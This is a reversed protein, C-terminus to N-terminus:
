CTASPRRRLVRLRYPYVYSKRRAASRKIDHALYEGKIRRQPDSLLKQLASRSFIVRELKWGDKQIVFAILNGDDCLLQVSRPALMAIIQEAMMMEETVTVPMASM